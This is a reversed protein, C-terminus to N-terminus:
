GGPCHFVASLCFVAMHLQASPRAAHRAPVDAAAGAQGALHDVSCGLALRGAGAAAVPGGLGALYAVLGLCQWGAAGTEFCCEDCKGRLWPRWAVGWPAVCRRRRSMWAASITPSPGTPPVM